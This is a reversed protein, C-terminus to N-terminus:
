WYCGNEIKKWIPPRESETPRIWNEWEIKCELEKIRPVWREGMVGFFIQLIGGIVIGQKGLKKCENALPLAYGGCGLLAIDFDKTSLEKVLREYHVSWPQDQYDDDHLSQTMPTVLVELSAFKPYSVNKGFLNKEKQLMISEKLPSVVLVKKDALAHFWFGEFALAAPFLISHLGECTINASLRKMKPCVNDIYHEFFPRDFVLCCDSGLLAKKYENSFITMQEETPPSVGVHVAAAKKDRKEIIMVESHGLRAVCFPEKTQLKDVIYQNAEYFELLHAATAFPFVRELKEVPNQCIDVCRYYFSEQTLEPFTFIVGNKFQLTLTKVLNPAVDGFYDNFRTKGAIVIANSSYTYFEQIFFSTVDKKINNTGYVVCIEVGQAVQHFVSM